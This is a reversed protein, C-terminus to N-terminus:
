NEEQAPKKRCCYVYHSPPEKDETPYVPPTTITPKAVQHVNVDWEYDPKELYSNRHVPQGYSVIIYVGIQKLIRHVETIMKNANATSGEGCLMADLTGKDIAVDFSGTEFDKM